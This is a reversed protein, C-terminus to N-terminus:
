EHWTRLQDDSQTTKGFRCYYDFIMQLRTNTDNMDVPKATSSGAGSSGDDSEMSNVRSRTRQSLHVCYTLTLSVRGEVADM